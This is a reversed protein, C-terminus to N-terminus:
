SNFIYSIYNCDSKFAFFDVQINFNGNEVNTKISIPEICKFQHCYDYKFYKLLNRLARPSQEEFFGMIRYDNDFTGIHDVNFQNCFVYIYNMEYKFVHGISM